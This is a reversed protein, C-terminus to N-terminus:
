RVGLRALAEKAEAAVPEGGVASPNAGAWAIAARFAKVAKAREGKRLYVHGLELQAYGYVVNDPPPYKLSKLYSQEALPLKSPDADSEALFLEGLGLYASPIFPSTPRDRILQSYNGRAGTIDGDREQELALYYLTEDACGTSKAPDAANPVACWKPHDTVLMQYYYITQRRAGVAMQARAPDRALVREMLVYGNAAYLIWRPRYPSTLPAASLASIAGGVVVQSYRRFADGSANVNTPVGQVNVVVRRLDRAMDPTPDPTAPVPVSVIDSSPESLPEPPALNVPAKPRNASALPTAGMPARAAPKSPAIVLTQPEPACGTAAVAVALVSVPLKM